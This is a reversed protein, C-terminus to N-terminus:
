LIHQACFSVPCSEHPGQRQCGHEVNGPRIAFEDSVHSPMWSSLLKLVSPKCGSILPPSSSRSGIGPPGRRLTITGTRLPLLYRGRHKSARPRDAYAWNSTMTRSSQEVSM